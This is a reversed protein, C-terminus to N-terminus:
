AFAFNLVAMASGVIAVSNGSGGESGSLRGVVDYEDSGARDLGNRM